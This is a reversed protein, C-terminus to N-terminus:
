QTFISDVSATLLGNILGGTDFHRGNRCFLKMFSVSLFLSLLSPPFGKLPKAYILSISDLDERLTKLERTGEYTTTGSFIWLYHVGLAM